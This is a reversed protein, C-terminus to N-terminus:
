RGVSREEASHEPSDGSDAVDPIEVAVLQLETGSRVEATLRGCSPCRLHQVDRITKEERCHSCFAVLPAHRIVLRAGEVPTGAAAVDFSFLLAEEVVAALAGIEIHVAELKRAGLRQCADSALEILDVAISLEHMHAADTCPLSRTNANFHCVAQGCGPGCVLPSEIAAGILGASM